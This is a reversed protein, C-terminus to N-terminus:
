EEWLDTREPKQGKIGRFSGEESDGVVGTSGLAFAAMLFCQGRPNRQWKGAQSGPGLCRPREEYLANESGPSFKAGVHTLNSHWPCQCGM